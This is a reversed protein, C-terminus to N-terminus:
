LVRESTGNVEKVGAGAGVEPMACQSLQVLLHSYVFLDTRPTSSGGFTLCIVFVVDTVEM